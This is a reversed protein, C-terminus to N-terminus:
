QGMRGGGPQDFIALAALSMPFVAHTYVMAPCFAAFTLALLNGPTPRGDLVWAWLVVLMALCCALSVLLGAEGLPVGLM